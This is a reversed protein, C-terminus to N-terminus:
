ALGILSMRHALLVGMGDPLHEVREHGRPIPAIGFGEGVQIRIRVNVHVV